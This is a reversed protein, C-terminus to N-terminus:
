DTTRPKPRVAMAARFQGALEPGLTSLYDQLLPANEPRSIFRLLDDDGSIGLEQVQWALSGVGIRQFEEGMSRNAERYRMVVEPEDKYREEVLAKVTALRELADKRHEALVHNEYLAIQYLRQTLASWVWMPAKWVEQDAHLVWDMCRAIEAYSMRAIAEKPNAAM